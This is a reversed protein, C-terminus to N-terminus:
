IFHLLDLLYFLTIILSSNINYVIFFVIAKRDMKYKYECSLNFINRQRKVKKFYLKKTFPTITPPPPYLLIITWSNKHIHPSFRPLLMSKIKSFSISIIIIIVYFEQENPLLFFFFLHPTAIM